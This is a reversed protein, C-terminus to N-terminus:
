GDRQLKSLQERIGEPLPTKRAARYDFSVIRGSGVAAVQGHRHSLVAYHMVFDTEGIEGIYTGSTVTDPYTLPIRFRCDTSALIPGQGLESALQTYGVQEFCGIRATEFYRFYVINNVHQFADMEGWAVPIEVHIPYEERFTRLTEELSPRSEPTNM